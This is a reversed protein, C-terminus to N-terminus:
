SKENMENYKKIIKEYLEKDKIIYENKTLKDKLGYCLVFIDNYLWDLPTMNYKDRVKDVDKHDIVEKVRRQALYHLPTSGDDDRISSVREDNLISKDGLRALNWLEEDSIM